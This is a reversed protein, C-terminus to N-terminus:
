ERPKRVPATFGPSEELVEITGAGARLSRDILVAQGAPVRVSAVADDPLFRFGM